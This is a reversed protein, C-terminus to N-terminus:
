EAGAKVECQAKLEKELRVMEDEARFARTFCNKRIIETRAIKAKRMLSAIEQRLQRIKETKQETTLETNM